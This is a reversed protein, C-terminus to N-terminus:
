RLIIRGQVTLNKFAKLREIKSKAIALQSTSM